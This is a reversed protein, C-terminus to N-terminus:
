SSDLRAGGGGGGLRARARQKGGAAHAERRCTRGAAGAGESTGPMTEDAAARGHRSACSRVTYAHVAKADTKAYPQSTTTSCTSEGSMISGHSPRTVKRKKGSSTANAYRSSMRYKSRTPELFCLCSTSAPACTSTASPSPQM